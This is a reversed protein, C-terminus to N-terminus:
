TVAAQRDCRLPRLLGRPGYFVDVDIELMDEANPRALMDPNETIDAYFNFSM